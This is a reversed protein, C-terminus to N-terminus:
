CGEPSATAVRNLSSSDQFQVVLYYEDEPLPGVWASRFALYLKRGLSKASM